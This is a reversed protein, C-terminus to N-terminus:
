HIDDSRNGRSERAPLAVGATQYMWCVPMSARNMLSISCVVGEFEFHNEPMVRHFQYLTLHLVPIGALRCCVGNVSFRTLQGPHPTSHKRAASSPAAPTTGKDGAGCAPARVVARCRLAM